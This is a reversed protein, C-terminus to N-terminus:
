LKVYTYYSDKVKEGNGIHEIQDPDYLDPDLSIDVRLRHTYDVADLVSNLLESSSLTAIVDSLNQASFELREIVELLNGGLDTKTHDGWFVNYNGPPKLDYLDTDSIAISSLLPNGIAYPPYCLGGGFEPLDFGFPTVRSSPPLPIESLTSNFNPNYTFKLVDSFSIGEGSDVMSYQFASNNQTYFRVFKTDFQSREGGGTLISELTTSFGLLTYDTGGVNVVVKEVSLVLPAVFGKINATFALDDAVQTATVTVPLLWASDTFAPLGLVTPDDSTTVTTLNSRLYYKNQNGDPSVPVWLYLQAIQSVTNAFAATKHNPDGGIDNSGLINANEGTSNNIPLANVVIKGGEGLLNPTLLLGVYNSGRDSGSEYRAEGLIINPRNTYVGSGNGYLGLGPSSSQLSSKFGNRLLGDLPTNTASPSLSRDYPHGETTKWWDPRFDYAVKQIDPTYLGSVLDAYTRQGRGPSSIRGKWLATLNDGFETTRLPSIVLTHSGSVFGTTNSSVTTGDTTLNISVPSTLIDSGRATILYTVSADSDGLVDIIQALTATAGTISWSGDTGVLNITHTQSYFTLEGTVSTTKIFMDPEAPVLVNPQAKDPGGRLMRITIPVYAVWDDAGPGTVYKFRGDVLNTGFTARSIYTDSDEQASNTRTDFVNVWYGPSSGVAMDIRVLVNTQVQLGYNGATIRLYGDWRVGWNYQEGRLSSPTDLWRMNSDETITDSVEVGLLSRETATWRTEVYERSFWYGQAVEFVSVGSESRLVALSTEPTTDDVGGPGSVTPDSAAQTFWLPPNVVSYPRTLRFFVTPFVSSGIIDRISSLSSVGEAITWVSGAAVLRLSIGSGSLNIPELLEYGAVDLVVVIETGLIDSATLNTIKNPKKLETVTVSSGTFSFKVYGIDEPTTARYFKADPGSHLEPFSGEGFYSNALSIRDEIRIRPTTSVKSGLSGGGISAGSLSFLFEKDIQEDIFDGTVGWDLGNFPRGYLNRESVDIQSLKDLINDLAKPPNDIDSLANSRKLGVFNADSERRPSALRLKRLVSSENLQGLGPTRDVRTAM